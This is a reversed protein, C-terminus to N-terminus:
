HFILIKQAGIQSQSVTTSALQHYIARIKPALSGISIPRVNRKRARSINKHAFHSDNEGLVSVFPNQIHLMFRTLWLGTAIATFNMSASNHSLFDSWNMWAYSRSNLELPFVENLRILIGLVRIYEDIKANTETETRRERETERQGTVCSGTRDNNDNPIDDCLHFSQAGCINAAPLM